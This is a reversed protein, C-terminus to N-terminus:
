KPHIGFRCEQSGNAISCKQELVDRLKTWTISRIAMTRCIICFIPNGKAEGIWPCNLFEIYRSTGEHNISTQIGLNSFFGSIWSIYFDFIAKKHDSDGKKIGKFVVFRKMDEEFRPRFNREFRDAFNKVLINRAQSPVGSAFVPLASVIFGYVEARAKDRRLKEAQKRGTIDYAIEQIGQKGKYIFPMAAVEVELVSGDLRIFKEEAPSIVKGFETMQRIRDKVLERSEPHVVDMIKRGIIQGSNAAGLLKAAATNAFVIKGKIHVAIAVPSLEVLKRYREESERLAEEARKRKTIDIIMAQKSISGDQHYIPTNAIYYWRNDRPSQVEWRVTEGRFIRDNVCWPCVSDRDHLVKYCYNGVGNYGTRRILQSNMFEVRYDKSCIYILGDFGEIMASLKAERERLTEEAHRRKEETGIASAIVGMLRKDDETPLFDKQYVVCLSGVYDNSFRVARGVYTRLDYAMVNPDTRAYRTEPLNQVVLVEDTGQNITDYCIHGEPKDVPNYGPPTNWQGWSCFMGRDLRNYLACSAGMLEGCLATLRNINDISDTGFGLMCNNLKALMEESRKRETIDRIIVSYYNEKEINWTALSIELPFESGDKRRGISEVTKGFFDSKGTSHVDELTKQHHKWYREPMIRSAPMGLIEEEEYGFIERAGKNWLIINGKSDGVMIADNASQVISRFRIESEKLAKESLKRASIDRAVHVMSAINGKEDKIPSASVEVYQIKGNKLFHKHEIISNRGTRLAEQLPCIDDPQSCPETRNHSINYCHEGISDEKRLGYIDSFAQNTDIIRFDNVDIISIADTISNLVTETFEKSRKLEREAQKRESINRSICMVQQVEGDENLLPVMKSDMWSEQNPNNFEFSVKKGSKFVKELASLHMSILEPPYDPSIIEDMTKGIIEEQSLGIESAAFSNVYHYRGKRDLIYIADQASEALTRYQNESERLKKEMSHKYLAIEITAHLEREQFPKILYGFPESIRARELTNSDAYATIYIIPIDYRARIQAAAEIGDMGGELMIDMLVLDPSSEATKQIAKKGSSVVGSIVYGLNQLRNELEMSIITEDEVILIKNGIAM